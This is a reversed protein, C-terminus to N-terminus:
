SLFHHKDLFFFCTKRYDAENREKDEFVVYWSDKYFNGPKLKEFGKPSEKPVVSPKKRLVVEIELDMTGVEQIYSITMLKLHAIIPEYKEENASWMEYQSRMHKLYFTFLMQDVGNQTTPVDVVKIFSRFKFVKPAKPLDLQSDQTNLDQFQKKAQELKVTLVKVRETKIALSNMIKSEMALDEQIKSFQSTISSIFEEHDSTIRACVEQLKEREVKSHPALM